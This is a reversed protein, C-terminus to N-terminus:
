NELGQNRKKVPRRPAEIEEPKIAFLSTQAIYAEIVEVRKGLQQVVIDNQASTKLLAKVDSRIETIMDWIVICFASLLFPTVYAKVRDLSNAM